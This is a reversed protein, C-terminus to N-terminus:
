ACARELAEIMMAAPNCGTQQHIEQMCTPSTVNIETLYEGIVDLGVLMLGDRKLVPALTEAIERDRATLKRAVGQAGRALNGRVDGPQPVRALCYPVPEGDIILVRKDGDVIQPIYRQAMITRSGDATLTEIIVNLNADGQKVRFVGQGGMGDLPKLVTDQHKDVFARLLDAQRTVV